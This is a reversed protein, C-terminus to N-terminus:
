HAKRAVIVIAVAYSFLGLQAPGLYRAVWIGVALGVGMRLINDAFQWGTNTVVNQLYARGELRDRIFTPLYRIWRQNM